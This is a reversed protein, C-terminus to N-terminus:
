GQGTGMLCQITGMEDAQMGMAKADHMAATATSGKHELDQLTHYYRTGRCGQKPVGGRAQVKM